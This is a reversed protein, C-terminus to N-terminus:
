QTETYAREISRYTEQFEEGGRMAKLFERFGEDGVADLWRRVELKSTAYGQRDNHKIIGIQDLDIAEAGNDTGTPWDESIRKDLQVALGEDFWNPIEDRNRHGIRASFEARGLEHSLVDVSLIGEPGLIIFPAVLTLYTRGARNYSNGGYDIMVEMTHGAIIVTDATYEGYLTEIREQADALLSLLTQRQSEPMNPDVYLNPAIPELDSWRVLYSRIVGRPASKYFVVGITLLLVLVPLIIKARKSTRM